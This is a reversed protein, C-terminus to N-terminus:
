LSELWTILEPTLKHRRRTTDHKIDCTKLAKAKMELDIHVYRYTTAVSVHGLWSKIVNIEVGSQLLHMATTHRLVHPTVHQNQLSPMASVAKRAYKKIIYTIGSRSIPEKCRNVFLHDTKCGLHKREKVYRDRAQATIDWLPCFRTKNGKGTIEVKFPSHLSLWSLQVDAVEQVRSGTNYMYLLMVYDRWGKWSTHDVISLIGQIEDRTLYTIQPILAGRKRPITTIRNCHEILLPERFAIYKYLQKITILRQNCTPVENGRKKQLHKLFELVVKETIDTVDLATAPKRIRGTTFQVLMKIADRYSWITNQSLNQRQVLHDDFFSRIYKALCYTTKM